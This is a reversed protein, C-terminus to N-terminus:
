KSIINIRFLFFYKCIYVSGKREQLFYVTKGKCLEASRQGLANNNLWINTVDYTRAANHKTKFMIQSSTHTRMFEEPTQFDSFNMNAVYCEDVPLEPKIFKVTFLGRSFDAIGIAVDNSLVEETDTVIIKEHVVDGDDGVFTAQYEKYIDKTMKMGFYVSLLVASVLLVFAVVALVMYVTKRRLTKERVETKFLEEPMTTKDPKM